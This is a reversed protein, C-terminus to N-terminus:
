LALRVTAQDLLRVAVRAWACVPVGAVGGGRVWVFTCMGAVCQGWRGLKSKMYAVLLESEM